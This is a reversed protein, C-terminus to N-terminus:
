HLLLQGRLQTDQERSKHLFNSIEGEILPPSIHLPVVIGFIYFSNIFANAIIVDTECECLMRFVVREKSLLKPNRRRTEVWNQLFSFSYGYMYAIMLTYKGFHKCRKIAQQQKYGCGACEMRLVIKKTTKAKKHFVPKTQGGFGKQKRDYRRKGPSCWTFIWVRFVVLVFLM